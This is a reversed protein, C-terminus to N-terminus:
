HTSDTREPRGRAGMRRVRLECRGGPQREPAPAGPRGGARIGDLRGGRHHPADGRHRDDDGVGIRAADAVVSVDGLHDGRGAVRGLYLWASSATWLVSLRLGITNNQLQVAMDRVEPAFLWRGAATPAPVVVAYAVLAPIGSRWSKPPPHGLRNQVGQNASYGAAIMWLVLLM